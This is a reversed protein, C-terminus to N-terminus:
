ISDFDGTLSSFLLFTQEQDAAMNWQLSYLWGFSFLWMMELCFIHEWHEKWIENVTAASWHLDQEWLFLTPFM